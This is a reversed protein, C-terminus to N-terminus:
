PAAVGLLEYEMSINGSDAYFRITDVDAATLRRGNFVHYSEGNTATAFGGKGYIQCYDADGPRSIHLEGSFEEGTASGHDYTLAMRTDGNSRLGQASTTYYGLCYSYNGAGSDFTSGGDTSTRINIVTGDTAPTLKRILLIYEEYGGTLSIDVNAAGSATAASIPVTGAPDALALIDGVTDYKLNDLDDADQLLIKDSTTATAATIAAGSLEAQVDTGIELGLDAKVETYSRGEIAGATVFRAFDNAVPTGSTTLAGINFVTNDVLAKISQQTALATASDSTMDDEDLIATVTAGSALTLDTSATLNTFTGAAATTGGIVAGDIKNLGSKFLDFVDNDPNYVALVIENTVIDGAALAAGDINMSKAALGDVALTAAGTNTANVQFAFLSIDALAAHANSTTLTYATTTGGTTATGKQDLYQKAVAAMNERICDNIAAPSMGEPAGDPPASNNSAATTSWQSVNSM